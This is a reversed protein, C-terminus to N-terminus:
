EISILWDNKKYLQYAFIFASINAIPYAIWVGIEDLKFGFVLVASVTFLVFIHFMAMAMSKTTLGAAKVTGILVMQVGIFGFTLAMIRIFMAGNAIVEIENPVFFTVLSQAFIFILIGLGTLILTGLLMSTKVIQRTREFNKAGLNNGVLIATAISLGVAPIIIFSLIRTGIGYSAVTITGLTSVLFTMLVMGLSRSSGEISSPIGLTILKKMWDIKPWLDSLSIRIYKGSIILGLGLIAALYETILTAVAVGGVGMAPIFYWGFMFLPDIFY